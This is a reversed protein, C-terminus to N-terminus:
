ILDFRAINSPPTENGNHDYTTISVFYTGASLQNVWYFKDVGGDFNTVPLLSDSTNGIYIRYGAIDEDSVVISNGNADRPMIHLYYTNAVSLTNNTQVDVGNGVDLQIADPQTDLANSFYITYAEIENLVPSAVGSVLMGAVDINISPLSSIAQGDSVSIVIDQYPGVDATMPVGLISGINKDFQAWSPLNQVSFTLSDGEADSAVPTFLYFDGAIISTPASGNILPSENAAETLSDSYQQIVSTYEDPSACDGASKLVLKVDSLALSSDLQQLETLYAKALWNFEKGSLCQSDTTTNDPNKVPRKAQTNLSYFSLVVGLFVGPVLVRLAEFKLM